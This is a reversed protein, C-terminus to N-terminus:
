FMWFRGLFIMLFAIGFALCSFILRTKKFRISPPQLLINVRKLITHKTLHHAFIHNTNISYKASKCVAAALNTSDIGYKKCKLDCGVEQGEEIRDCLWKTPIWWFLTRIFDLTLRVLSDKYRVHEIEHALVAEYEKRSLNRSLQDPIYIVSSILGAVFPSGSLTPSTLIKVGYKRICSYLVSNRMKKCLPQSNKALSELATLSRYYLFLKRIVFGVTISMLLLVFVKLVVPNIAYGILDAITFTMNGPVTFQIGSAIPLVLWDTISNMGGFMVSLMRTGEECDWPNVGQTYSWRSFDYLFLDLPLKIIPIMRFTAAVRGQRIRFLFIVGEILFAVTLFALFSNLFINLIFFSTKDM